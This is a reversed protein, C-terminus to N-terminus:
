DVPLPSAGLSRDQASVLAQLVAAGGQLVNLDVDGNIGDIRGQDHYQWIVWDDNDPELLLSRLWLPRAVIHGSYAQAAVDTLYVITPKGFAAEVPAIFAALEASLQEPTPRRPCNGAFEIDVVPPLLPRDHPVVSIFNRAQDAGPRCFTFFHYAGVALGAARAEELNRAFADDVHDGGETAKIVAFAVDDAAVRRWDIQGQHHSVDVGRVPYKSRDPSFPRFHFFGAAAIACAVFLSALGWVVIRNNM